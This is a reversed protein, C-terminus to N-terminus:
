SLYSFDSQKLQRSIYDENFKAFNRFQEQLREQLIQEYEQKLSTEKQALLLLAIEKMEEYTYLKEGSATSISKDKQTRNKSALLRDFDIANQSNTLVTNFPSEMNRREPSNSRIEMNMNTNSEEMRVRKPSIYNVGPSPTFNRHPSCPDREINMLDQGWERPRKQSLKLM